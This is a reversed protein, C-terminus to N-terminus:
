PSATTLISVGMKSSNLLSINQMELKTALMSIASPFRLVKNSCHWVLMEDNHLINCEGNMSIHSFYELLPFIGSSPTYVCINLKM